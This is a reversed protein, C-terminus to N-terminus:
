TFTQVVVARAYTGSFRGTTRNLSIGPPLNTASFTVPRNLLNVATLPDLPPATGEVQRKEILATPVVIQISSGISWIMAKMRGVAGVQSVQILATYTAQTATASITGSILGSSNISLGPPLGTASYSLAGPFNSTATVQATIAEGRRASKDSVGVVIDSSFAAGNLVRRYFQPQSEYAFATGAKTFAEYFTVYDLYGGNRNVAHNITLDGIITKDAFVNWPSTIGPNASDNIRLGILGSPSSLTIAGSINALSGGAGVIVQTSIYVPQSPLGISADRFDITGSNNWVNVVTGRGYTGKDAVVFKLAGTNGRVNFYPHPIQATGRFAEVFQQTVLLSGNNALIEIPRHAENPQIPSRTWPNTTVDWVGLWFQMGDYEMPSFFFDGGVFLEAAQAAIPRNITAQLYPSAVQLKPAINPSFRVTPTYHVSTHWVEADYEYYGVGGTITTYRYTQTYYDLQIATDTFNFTNYFLSRDQTFVSLSNITSVDTDTVEVDIFAGVGLHIAYADSAGGANLKISSANADRVAFPITQTRGNTGFTRTVSYVAPPLLVNTWENIFTEIAGNNYYLIAAQPVYWHNARGLYPGTTTVTFVDPASTGGFNLVAGGAIAFEAGVLSTDGISVNAGPRAVIQVKKIGHATASLGANATVALAKLAPNYKDDLNSNEFGINEDLPVRVSLTSQGYPGGDVQYTAPVGSFSPTITFNNIWTGGVM